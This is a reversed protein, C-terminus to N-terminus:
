KERCSGTVGGRAGRRTSGRNHQWRQAATTATEEKGRQLKLRCWWTLGRTTSGGNHQRRRTEGGSVSSQGTTGRERCSNQRGEVVVRSGRRRGGVNPQWWVKAGGAMSRWGGDSCEKEQVEMEHVFM